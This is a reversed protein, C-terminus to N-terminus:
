ERTVTEDLNLILSAMAVYAAWEGVDLTADRPSEGVAVLKEAAEPNKRYEHLQRQFGDALLKL